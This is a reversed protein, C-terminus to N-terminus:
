KEAGELAPRDTSLTATGFFLRESPEISAYEAGCHPCTPEALLAVTVRNECNDCLATEIDEAAAQQRIETLTEQRSTAAKSVRSRLGVLARAVTDLRAQMRETDSEVDDLRDILEGEELVTQLESVTSRLSEFEQLLEPFKELEEHSHDAPAKEDTEQKVQVLRRRIEDIRDSIREQLDDIDREIPALEEEIREDIDLVEALTEDRETLRESLEEVAPEEEIDAAVRYAALLQVLVTERDVELEEAREDLWDDLDSPLAVTLSAGETTESAM